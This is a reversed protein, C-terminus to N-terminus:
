PSKQQGKNLKQWKKMMCVSVFCIAEWSGFRKVRIIAVGVGLMAVIFGSTALLTNLANM